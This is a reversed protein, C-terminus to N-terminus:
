WEVDDPRPRLVWIVTVIATCILAVFIWDVFTMNADVPDTYAVVRM